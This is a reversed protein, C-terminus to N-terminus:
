GGLVRSSRHRIRASRTALYASISVDLGASTDFSVYDVHMGRCGRRLTSVFSEVEALYELRLAHPETMVRGAGELGNFLTPGQFPFHREAPDWINCVIVDNGLYRLHKLGLLTESEEDFLDSIVIVLTRRGLRECLDDLVSRVSTKESHAGGALSNVLQKWHGPHSSPKIYERISEDFMALGVADRQQLALYSLSAAVCSAYEHKSMSAGPSKYGMSASCDVVIMCSLNTEQEYQKIYYKDTRAFLKWDIHRIDDGQVYSRHDAFEVSMGQNPSAHSGVVYGEVAVRARLELGDIKALVNPDLYKKYAPLQPM